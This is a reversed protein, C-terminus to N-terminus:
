VLLSPKSTVPVTLRFFSSSPLPQVSSAALSLSSCFAGASATIVNSSFGTSTSCSTETGSTLRVSTSSSSPATLMETFPRSGSFFLVMLARAPSTTSIWTARLAPRVSFPM